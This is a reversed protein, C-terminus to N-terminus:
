SAHVPVTLPPHGSASRLELLVQARVSQTQRLRPLLHNEPRATARDPQGPPACAVLPVARELPGPRLHFPVGPVVYEALTSVKFLPIFYLAFYNDIRHHEYPRLTGCHPCQFQGTGVLKDRERSGLIIM